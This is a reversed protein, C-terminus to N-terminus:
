IPPNQKSGNRHNTLAIHNKLSAKRLGVKSSCFPIRVYTMRDAIPANSHAAANIAHIVIKWILLASQPSTASLIDKMMGDPIAHYLCLIELTKNESIADHM